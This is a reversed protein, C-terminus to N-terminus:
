MIETRDTSRVFCHVTYFQEKAKAFHFQYVSHLNHLLGLFIAFCMFIENELNNVQFNRLTHFRQYLRLNPYM